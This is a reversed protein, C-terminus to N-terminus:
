LRRIKKHFLGARSSLSRGKGGHFSVLPKQPEAPNNTQWNTHGVFFLVSVISIILSTFRM